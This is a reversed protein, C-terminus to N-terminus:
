YVLHHDVKLFRHEGFEWFVSTWMKIDPSMRDKYICSVFAYILTWSVPHSTSAPPRPWTTELGTADLLSTYPTELEQRLARSCATPMQGECDRKWIESGIFIRWSWKQGQRIQRRWILWCWNTEMLLYKIQPGSQARWFVELYKATIGQPNKGM